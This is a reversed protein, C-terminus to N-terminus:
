PSLHDSCSTKLGSACKWPLYKQSDRDGERVRSTDRTLKSVEMHFGENLLEPLKSTVLAEIKAVSSAGKRKITLSEAQCPM